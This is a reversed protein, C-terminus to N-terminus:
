SPRLLSGIESGTFNGNNSATVTIDDDATVNGTVAAKATHDARTMGVAAAAQLLGDPFFDLLDEGMSVANVAGGRAANIANWCSDSKDEKTGNIEKKAESSGFGANQSILVNVSLPLNNYAAAESEPKQYLKANIKTATPNNENGTLQKAKGDADIYRQIDAGKGTAAATTRDKSNSNATVTAKGTASVAGTKAEAMSSALNLAVAAGVATNGDAGGARVLTEGAEDATIILNGAARTNNEDQYGTIRTTNNENIAATVHHQLLNIALSADAADAEPGKGATSTIEEQHASAARITLKGATLNM